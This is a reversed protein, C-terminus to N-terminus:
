ASHMLLRKKKKRSDKFQGRINREYVLFNQSIESLFEALM